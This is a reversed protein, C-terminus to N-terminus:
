NLRAVAHGVGHSYSRLLLPNLPRTASVTVTRILGSACTATCSVPSAGCECRLVPQPVDEERLERWAAFVASRVAELDNTGSVAVQAGARAARELRISVQFGNALDHVCLMLTILVPAVMALETAAIGRRGIRLWAM